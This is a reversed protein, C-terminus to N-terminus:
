NKSVGLLEILEPDDNKHKDYLKRFEKLDIIKLGVDIAKRYNNLDLFLVTQKYEYADLYENNSSISRDLYILASDFKQIRRYCMAIHFNLTDQNMNYGLAAKYSDIAASFGGLDAMREFNRARQFHLLYTSTGKKIAQSFFNEATDSFKGAPPQNMENIADAVLEDGSKFFNCSIFVQLSLLFVIKKKM